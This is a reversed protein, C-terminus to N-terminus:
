RRQYIVPVEFTILCGLLKKEEEVFDLPGTPVWRIRYQEVSIVQDNLATIVAHRIIDLAAFDDQKRYIRVEIQQDGADALEIAGRLGAIKVTAFPTLTNVPALFAQYVRGGFAPISVQLHEIVARRVSM